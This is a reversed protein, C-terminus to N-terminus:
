LVFLRGPPLARFDFGDVPESCILKLFPSSHYRLQYYDGGEDTRNYAYLNAQDCLGINLAQIRRSYRSLLGDVSSLSSGPDHRQLQKLILTWIKQSGIRGPVPTPFSVGQLLGNFVFGYAGKIFPQVYDLSDKHGPFSASRAHILLFASRPIRAWSDRDEWMPLASRHARWTKQGDLWAAGWGDKQRDGDPTRSKETVAAFSELFRGTEVRVASKMMLFRCM